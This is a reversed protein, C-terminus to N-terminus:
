FSTGINFNFERTKDSSNKQIPIAYTLSVPIVSLFDISAGLSSRLDFDDDTKYDSDWLSGVTYFFKLNINDKEDFIFNDGYGLTSTFYKNGGLYISSDFNGIGRYDFGKFNMGGLSFTDSTKLNGTLSDTYGFNNSIFFFGPKNKRNLFLDNNLHLKYLPEDSLFEPYYDFSLINRMGNTPYLIDNTTDYNISLSYKFRTSKNINESVVNSSNIPSHKNVDSVLFGNFINTNKDLEFKLTYGIGYERVKYGYSNTLDDESNFVKYINQIYPSRPSAQSYDIKFLAKESSIDITSSISNGSGLFNFDKLGIGFGLGTDGSFSGGILFSGTKKNEDLNIDLDISSDSNITTAITAKNIYRLKSILEENENIQEQYFQEGPEVTLKSRITKDKTIANGNVDIKNILQIESKVLDLSIDIYNDQLKSNLEFKKNSLNNLNLIQNLKKNSESLLKFDYYNDNKEIYKKIKQIEKETISRINNDTINTEFTRIKYRENENILFNLSYKNKSNSKLEYTIKADFFGFDFYLQKMRQLDSNFISKDFNSGSSFIDFISISESSIFNKLYKDSFFNNGDFRIKEIESLEGEQIQFILNLKNNIKETVAEVSVDSFGQSNYLRRIVNIDNKILDKALLNNSKSRIQNLLLDDKIVLNGSFFIDNILKSEEIKLLVTEDNIKYSINYILESKYLDKIIINIDETKLNNREIDISTLIQIDSLSLKQNDIIKIELASLNLIKFFFIILFYKFSNRINM